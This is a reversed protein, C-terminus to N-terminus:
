LSWSPSVRHDFARGHVITFSTAEHLLCGGRQCFIVCQYQERNKRQGGGRWVCLMLSAESTSNGLKGFLQVHAISSLLLHYIFICVSLCAWFAECGNLRWRLYIKTPDFCQRSGKKVGKLDLASLHPFFDQASVTREGRQVKILSSPHKYLRHLGQRPPPEMGSWWCSLLRSCRPSYISPPTHTHTRVFLLSM